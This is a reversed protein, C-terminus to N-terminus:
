RFHIDLRQLMTRIDALSKVVESDDLRTAATRVIPLLTKEIFDMHQALLNEVALPTQTHVELLTILEKEKM